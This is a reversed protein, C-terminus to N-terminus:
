CFVVLTRPRVSHISSKCVNFGRVLLSTKVASNAMWRMVYQRVLTFEGQSMEKERRYRCSPRGWQQQFLVCNMNCHSRTPREHQRLRDGYLVVSHHSHWGPVSFFLECPRVAITSLFQQAFRIFPVDGFETLMRVPSVSFDGAEQIGRFSQRTLTGITSFYIFGSRHTLYTIVRFLFWKIAWQLFTRESQRLQFLAM